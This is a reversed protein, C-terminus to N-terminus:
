RAANSSWDYRYADIRTANGLIAMTRANAYKRAHALVGAESGWDKQYWDYISSGVLRGNVRAFGRPHNVYARAAADLMAPLTEARYPQLELNPCGISACNVAYHIRVDRWGPRLIRHEIDDLSVRKGEVTAIKRSWPGRQLIPSDIKRITSVPWADLMVDLTAANYLNIWFAMQRPRSLRSVQVTQLAALYRKLAARDPASVQSYAVRNIGDAGPRVYSKLFAAYPRDDVRATVVQATAPTVTFAAAMMAAGGIATILVLKAHTRNPASLISRRLQSKTVARVGTVSASLFADGDSEDGNGRHVM